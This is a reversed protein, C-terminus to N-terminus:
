LYERHAMEKGTKTKFNKDIVEKLKEKDNLVDRTKLNELLDAEWLIQFDIGDIKSYTHHNGVIYCVRDIAKQDYGINKLIEEAIIKGEREQYPADSSGHKRKAEIIGIDHLIAVISIFERDETKINEGDMIKEAYGLVNLTHDIQLPFEKFVKKMEKLTKQKYKESFEEDSVKMEMSHMFAEFGENEYFGIASYNSPIVSLRFHKANRKLGWNKIGDILEKGVGKNRFREDVILNQIYVYTNKVLVPEDKTEKFYIEGVGIVKEDEIALVFDSNRDEIIKLVEKNKVKSIKFFNPLLEVSSENLKDLLRKIEKIDELTAIRINM